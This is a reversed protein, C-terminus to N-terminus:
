KGHAHHEMRTFTHYALLSAVTMGDVIDRSFIMEVCRPLPMWVPPEVEHETTWSKPEEVFRRSFFIHTPNDIIDSGPHYQVLAHTELCRIGTEELCERIAASQPTEGADVKGGPIEWTLGNWLRRYQRCLLVEEGRVVIVSARAGYRTMFYERKFAGFDATQRYIQQYPDQYVLEAPGFVPQSRSM